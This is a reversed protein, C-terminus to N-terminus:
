RGFRSTDLDEVKPKKYNGFRYTFSLKFVPANPKINMTSYQNMYDIKTTQKGSKFVDEVRFMLEARSDLFTWKAGSAVNWMRGIDYIGQLAGHMYFGSVDLKVDPRSSINITNRLQVVFSNKSRTYPVNYFDDDKEEQRILNVTARTDWIKDIKLPVVFFVGFQKEYNLNVMQFVNQLAEQSQYPLQIYRDPKYEYYGGIMYKQNMIFNLQTKYNRSFKLEPNGQVMSYANIRVVDNSLAWYPPYSIDSSFSLQLIRRPNYTYTLNANVFPQFDNWLTKKEGMIDITARFYNASLSAQASLKDGFSKSFGAFVSASYEKQMSNNISDVAQGEPNRYYDYLNNNKSSSTNGGYDLRWENKLSISHNIFAVVKDVKQNTKTKFVTQLVDGNSYDSYKETAPDRYITYDVGMNLNKHSNYEIKMNHLYSNGDKNSLSTIDSFPNKDKLFVTKAAPKSDTDDIATTYVLRFKDKNTFTYGLGLRLNLAKRDSQFRNQQTIDYTHSDFQHKAYMDNLGWGKSQGLGVTLDANFSPKTYLLNGRLGYGAYFAQKYEANGEGQITPTGATQGKLIINIAAGRINYQPPASYMIEIDSVRSAPISKLLNVIQDKSMSTQQGNILITYGSSGILQLEDGVGTVSPVNKLTEFANSVAKDKVLQPIDYVLKGDVAKVVPREGSVVVQNLLKSLSLLVFPALEVSNNISVSHNEKEYAMHQLVLIYNGGPIDNFEFEGLTNSIVTKLLLSDDAKQLVCVVAEVPLNSENMVGGRLSYSQSFGLPSIFLLFVWLLQKM